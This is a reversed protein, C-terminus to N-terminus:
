GTIQGADHTVVTLYLIQDDFHEDIRWCTGAEPSQSIVTGAPLDTRLAYRLETKIRPDLSVRVENEYHREVCSPLELIIVNPVSFLGFFAFILCLIVLAAASGCLVSFVANRRLSPLVLPKKESFRRFVRHPNKMLKKVAALMSAASQFRNKPDKELATLIIQELGRPIEPNWTSPYRPLEARHLFAVTQPDDDEFPFHGTAMRYMLAGLSYLDSRADVVAGSAQEPSMTDATGLVKGALSCAGRGGIEAIGFDMVKVGGQPLLLINQGKIDRHVVGNEHACILAELVACAVALVESTLLTGHEAMRESLPIGRILEM